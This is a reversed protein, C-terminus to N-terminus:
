SEGFGQPPYQGSSPKNECSIIAEGIRYDLQCLMPQVMRLDEGHGSGDCNLM